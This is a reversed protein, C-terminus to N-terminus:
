KMIKETESEIRKKIAEEAKAKARKQAATITHTGQRFYTGYEICQMLMGAPVHDAFRSSPTVVYGTWGVSTDKTDPNHRFKAIGLKEILQDKEDQTAGYLKHNETGYEKDDRVPLSRVAAEMEDAVIGAADYLAMSNIRSIADRLDIFQQGFIDLGTTKIRPM